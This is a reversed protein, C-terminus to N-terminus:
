SLLSWCLASVFGQGYCVLGPYYCKGLIRWTTSRNRTNPSSRVQVGEKAQRQCISKCFFNSTFKRRIGCNVKGRWREIHKYVTGWFLPGKNNRPQQKLTVCFVQKERCLGSCWLYVFRNCSAEPKGLYIPCLYSWNVRWQWFVLNCCPCCRRGEMAPRPRMASRFTLTWCRWQQGPGWLRDLPWPDAGRVCIIIPVLWPWLHSSWQSM